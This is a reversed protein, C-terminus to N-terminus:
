NRLEWEESDNLWMEIGAEVGDAEAWTADSGWSLGLRHIDPVWLYEAMGPYSGVQFAGFELDPHDDIAAYAETRLDTSKLEVIQIYQGKMTFEVNARREESKGWGLAIGLYYIAWAIGLWIFGVVRIV